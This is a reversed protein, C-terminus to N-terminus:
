EKQHEHQWQSYTYTQLQLAHIENTLHNGLTQYVKRHQQVLSLDQFSDSVVVAQFHDGTGTTDIVEVHADPLGSLILRKVTEAEM